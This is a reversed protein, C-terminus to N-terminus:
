HSFPFIVASWFVVRSLGPNKAILRQRLSHMADSAQKFPGRPDPKAQAGYYLLGGERRLSSCAKVELCLIGKNPIIVVFDIEGAVQSSHNAVDLSHLVIWGSTGPDDRLRRFVEREGPSSCGESVCSPIMIAM